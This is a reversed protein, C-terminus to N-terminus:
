KEQAVQGRHKFLDRSVTESQDLKDGLQEVREQRPQILQLDAVGNHKGGRGTRFIERNVHSRHSKIRQDVRGNGKKETQNQKFVAIQSLGFISFWFYHQVVPLNRCDSPM